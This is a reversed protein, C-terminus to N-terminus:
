KFQDIQSRTGDAAKVTSDGICRGGVYRAAEVEGPGRTRRGASEFVGGAGANEAVDDLGGHNPVVPGVGDVQRGSQGIRIGAAGRAPMLGRRNGFRIRQAPADRCREIVGPCEAQATGIVPEGGLVRVGAGIWRRDRRIAHHRAHVVDVTGPRESPIVLMGRGVAEGRVGAAVGNINSFQAEGIQDVLVVVQEAHAVIRVHLQKRADVVVAKAARLKRIDLGILVPRYEDDTAAKGEESRM